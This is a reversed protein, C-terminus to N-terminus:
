REVRLKELAVKLEFLPIVMDGGLREAWVRCGQVRFQSVESASGQFWFRIIQFM